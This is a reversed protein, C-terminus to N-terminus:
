VGENRDNFKRFDESSMNMINLAHVSDFDTFGDLGKSFIGHTVYLRLKGQYGGARIVKALEIFTRGGDAIDDVVWAEDATRFEDVNIETRTIEGTAVDRVKKAEVVGIELDKALKYIKKLAGADPSILVATKKEEKLDYLRDDLAGFMLDHQEYISLVGAPFMGALVDSHADWVFVKSFNCSKVIDAFVQLAFPEGYTMVRDQRAFPFYWIRLSIPVSAGYMNRLANNVLLMDIIDDSGKFVCTIILPKPIHPIIRIKIEESVPEYPDAGERVSIKVNREGGPFTWFKCNHDSVYIM